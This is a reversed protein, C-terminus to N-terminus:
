SGPRSARDRPACPTPSSLETSLSPPDIRGILSSAGRIQVQGGGGPAGNNMSFVAGTVKGQLASEVSTAPVRTLLTNDVVATATPANRKEIATAAGTITLAELQLVDREMAFDATSENPNLVRSQRKYGIARVQLTHTGTSPIRLRYVGQENTRVGAGVLGVLADQLPLGSGAITVKGTVERTGQQAPLTLATAATAALAFAYVLPKKM